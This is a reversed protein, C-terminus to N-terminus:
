FEPKLNKALLPDGPEFLFLVCCLKKGALLRSINHALLKLLVEACITTEFRSSARRFGMVSELSAFVPEITAVRQAYRVAADPRAMRARMSARLTEFGWRVSLTRRESTTCRERLPCAVCGVGKYVTTDDKRTFRIKQMKAGSPCRVDEPSNAAFRTRPLFDKGRGRLPGTEPLEPILLDLWERQEHAFALDVATFYGSDAAVQVHLDPPLGAQVLARKAQRVAPALLGMDNPAANVLVGLAIRSRAGCSAVTLRHGPYYGNGPFQILAALPNTTLFTKVGKQECHKVVQQHKEVKGVHKKQEDAPLQEVDVRALDELRRQSGSLTRVASRSAHAELRMSDIAVANADVLGQEFAWRVTLQLAAAFFDGGHQRFRNLVPRSIAHGGSLLRLAMDTELAQEVRTCHHIGRLSAYLWVGLLWRPRYGHQGLASYRKELESVDLQEVVQALKRALHGEPVCKEALQLVDKDPEKFRPTPDKAVRRLSDGM